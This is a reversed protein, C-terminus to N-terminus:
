LSGRLGLLPLIPLGRVPASDRYRYDYITDEPNEANTVNQVDLFIAMRWVDFLFTREARLDLQSFAGRRTSALRGLEPTFTGYDLDAFSGTIPTSPRGSVFRYRVGAEWAGRLYSAVVVLNHTQDFTAPHWGNRATEDASSGRPSALGAEIEEAFIASQEARSLTYAIWGYFHRALAHRVILELGHARAQGTSSFKDASPVPVGHRRVAFLTASLRVAETLQQDAGVNYQEASVLSLHPNGFEHDLYRPAPLQHFVGVGARLALRDTAQWRLGLRPDLSQRYEDLVWYQDFRLGPTLRLAPTPNWRVEVFEAPAFDLYRRQTVVHEPKTFGFTRGERPFSFDFSAWDASVLGDLGLTLALRRGLERQLDERLYLRHNWVRGQDSAADFREEGYGYAPRFRSTWEGVPAVWTLLARHFTVHNGLEVRRDPDASVVKLDDHSGFALLSLRGHELRHDVRGQYDWYSPVATTFTSGPKEPVLAPLLFDILSRRAALAVATDRGLPGEAILSADLPSV